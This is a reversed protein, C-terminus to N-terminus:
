IKGAMIVRKDPVNQKVGNVVKTSIVDQTAVVNFGLKNLYLHQIISQNVSTRVAARTFGRLRALALREQILTRAIGVRRFHANVFLESFYFTRSTDFPILAVLDPKRKLSFGVTAGAIVGNLDFVLFIADPWSLIERFEAELEAAVFEEFWPPEAFCACYLQIITALDESRALRVFPHVFM